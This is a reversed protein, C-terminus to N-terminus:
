IAQRSGKQTLKMYFGRYLGFTYFIVFVPLLVVFSTADALSVRLTLLVLLALVMGMPIALLIVPWFFAVAFGIPVFLLYLLLPYRYRTGPKLFGDIFVTGRHLSHKFFARITSRSNYTFSFSPDLYIDASKAIYRILSSDDNAFKLDNFSTEFKNYAQMLLDKPAFFCTTGKPYYDFKDLGYHTLKPKALYRRWAVFTVTYWFRAQLNGERDIHVHGNWVVAEPHKNMAKVLFKFSGRHAYTRSDIFFIYDGNAVDLGNKRTKFRGQNKQTIVRVKKDKLTKKAVEATKDSSGDDIVIIEISKWKTPGLAIWLHDLTPGIWDEANYAPIIVSLKAKEPTPYTTKAM